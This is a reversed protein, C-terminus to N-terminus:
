KFFKGGQCKDDVAEDLLKEADMTRKCRSGPIREMRTKLNEKYTKKLFHKFSDDGRRAITYLLNYVLIMVRDTITTRATASAM